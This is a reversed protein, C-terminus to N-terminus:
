FSYVGLTYFNVANIIIFGCSPYEATIAFLCFLMYCRNTASVSDLRTRYLDCSDIKVRPSNLFNSRPYFSLMLHSVNSSASATSSVSRSYSPYKQLICSATTMTIGPLRHSKCLTFFDVLPCRALM